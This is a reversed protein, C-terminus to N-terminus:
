GLEYLALGSVEATGRDVFLGVSPAPAPQWNLAGQLVLIDDVFLEFRPRRICLRLHYSRGYELPFARVHQQDFAPLRAAVARQESGDLFFVFDGQHDQGSHDRYTDPRFVFGVAAGQSLSVSASFEFNEAGLGLDATQWGALAEGHYVGEELRWTGANLAWYFQTFPLRTIEPLGGPAILTRKRWGKAHESFGLRLRGGSITRLAM